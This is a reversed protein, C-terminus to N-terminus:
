GDVSRTLIDLAADFDAPEYLVILVALETGRDEPEWSNLRSVITKGVVALWEPLDILKPGSGRPGTGFAAIALSTLHQKRAEELASEICKVITDVDTNGRRDMAAVHIIGTIPPPLAGADTFWAEGRPFPGQAISQREVDAGAAVKISSAIVTYMRGDVDDNSVIGDVAISTVDGDVVLLEGRGLAM